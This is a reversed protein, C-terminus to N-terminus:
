GERAIHVVWLPSQHWSHSNTHSLAVTAPQTDPFRAHLCPSRRGKVPSRTQLNCDSVCRRLNDLAVVGKTNDIHSKAVVYFDERLIIDFNTYAFLEGRGQAYGLHWVDPVLPSPIPTEGETLGQWRKRVVCHAKRWPCLLPVSRAGAVQSVDVAEDSFHVALVEVIIGHRAAYRVAKDIAKLTWAYQQDKSEAGPFPNVVHTIHVQSGRVTEATEAIASAICPITLLDTRPPLGAWCGRPCFRRQDESAHEAGGRPPITCDRHLASGPAPVPSKNAASKKVASKKVASKDADSERAPRSTAPSAPRSTSMNTGLDTTPPVPRRYVPRRRLSMAKDRVAIAAAATVEVEDGAEAWGEVNVELALGRGGAEEHPASSHSAMRATLMATAFLPVAMFLALRRRSAM